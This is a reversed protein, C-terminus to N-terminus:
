NVIEIEAPPSTMFTHRRTHIGCHCGHLHPLVWAPVEAGARRFLAHYWLLETLGQLMPPNELLLLPIIPNWGAERPFYAARGLIVDVPLNPNQMASRQVDESFGHLMYLRLQQPDTTPDQAQRLDQEKDNKYMPALVMGKRTNTYNGNGSSRTNEM